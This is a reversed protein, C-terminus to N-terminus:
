SIAPPARSSLASVPIRRHISIVPLCRKHYAFLSQLRNIGKPLLAAGLSLFSLGKKVMRKGKVKFHPQSENKAPKSFPQHIGFPDFGYILKQHIAILDGIVLWFFAFALVVTILKHKNHYIRIEKGM